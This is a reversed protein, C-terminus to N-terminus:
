PIVLQVIEVFEDEINYCGYKIWMKVALMILRWIQVYAPSNTDSHFWCFVFLIQMM